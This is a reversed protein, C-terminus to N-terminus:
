GLFVRECFEEMGGEGLGGVKEVAVETAGGCVGERDMVKVARLEVVQRDDEYLVGNLSDLVLKALNDVDSRNSAAISLSKSDHLPKLRNPGPHSAIFHSKPRKM